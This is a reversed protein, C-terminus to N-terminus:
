NRMQEGLSNVSEVDVYSQTRSRSRPSIGRTLRAFQLEIVHHGSVAARTEPPIGVERGTRKTQDFKLSRCKEILREGIRTLLM